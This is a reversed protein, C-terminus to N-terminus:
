GSNEIICNHFAREHHVVFYGSIVQIKKTYMTYVSSLTAYSTVARNKEATSHALSRARFVARSLGHSLFIRRHVRKKAWKGGFKKRLRVLCDLLFVPSSTTRYRIFVLM